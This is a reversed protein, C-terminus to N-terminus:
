RLRKPTVQSIFSPLNLKGNQLKPQHSFGLYLSAQTFLSGPCRKSITKFHISSTISNKLHHERHDWLTHPTYIPSARRTGTGGLLGKEQLEMTLTGPSDVRRRSKRLSCCSFLSRESARRLCCNSCSCCSRSCSSYLLCSSASLCFLISCCFSCLRLSSSTPVYFTWREEQTGKCWNAPFTRDNEFSAEENSPWRATMQFHLEHGHSERLSLGTTQAQSTALFARERVPTPPSTVWILGSWAKGRKLGGDWDERNM